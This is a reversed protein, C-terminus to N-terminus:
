RGRIRYYARRYRDWGVTLRRIYSALRVPLNKLARHAHAIDAEPTRTLLCFNPGRPTQGREILELRARPLLRCIRLGLSDIEAAFQDANVTHVLFAEVFEVFIRINPSRRITNQMGRIVFPEHGEVDIKVLDVALGAPLFQDITIMDLEISRKAGGWQGIDTMTAGGLFEPLYYLTGRGASEGVLSNVATVNPHHALRNAYLTRRLLDFTHPNAEFSYLRGHDRIRSASTATYLGFNAGIDLVVSEPQLFSQFLPLVHAEMEWGLLYDTADISNADVCIYEGSNLRVLARDAGAYIPANV